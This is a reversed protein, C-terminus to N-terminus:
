FFHVSKLFCSTSLGGSQPCISKGSMLLEFWLLEAVVVDIDLDFATTDAAAIYVQDVSTPAFSGQRYADTMLDDTMRDCDAVFNLCDLDAVSHAYSSLNPRAQLTIVALIVILVVAWM